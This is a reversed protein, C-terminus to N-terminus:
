AAEKGINGVGPIVGKNHERIANDYMQEVVEQLEDCYVDERSALKETTHERTSFLEVIYTDSFDLTIKIMWKHGPKGNVYLGLYDRGVIIQKTGMYALAGTLGKGGLQAIMESLIIDKGM